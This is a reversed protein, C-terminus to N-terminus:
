KAETHHKPNLELIRKYIKSYHIQDLPLTAFLIIQMAKHYHKQSKITMSANSTVESHM